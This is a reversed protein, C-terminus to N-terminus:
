TLPLWVFLLDQLEQNLGRETVGLVEWNNIGKTNCGLEGLTNETQLM